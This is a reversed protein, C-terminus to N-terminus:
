SEIDNRDRRRAIQHPVNGSIELNRDRDREVIDDDEHDLIRSLSVLTAREEEERIVDEDEPIHVPQYGWTLIHGDMGVSYYQELDSNAVVSIVRDFHGVRTSILHGDSVDCQTINIGNPILIQTKSLNPTLTLRTNRHPPQILPYPVHLTQGTQSNWQRIRGELGLSFIFDGNASYLLHSVGRDHSIIDSPVSPQTNSSSQMENNYTNPAASFYRLTGSRRIDWMRISKDESGSILEFERTPNWAVSLIEGKHGSLSQAIEGARVDCLRVASDSTAAALLSHKTASSSMSMNYVTHDLLISTVISVSNTDWIHVSHDVGGSFFMGTDYPYWMVVTLPLNPSLSSPATPIEYQTSVIPHHVISYLSNSRNKINQLIKHRDREERNLENLIRISEISDEYVLPRINNHSPLTHPESQTKLPRSKTDYISIKGQSSGVLLYKSEVNDVSLSVIPSLPGRHPFDFSIPLPCLLSLRDLYSSLYLSHINTTPDNTRARRLLRFFSSSTSSGTVSPSLTPPSSPSSASPVTNSSPSSM